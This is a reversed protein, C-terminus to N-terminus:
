RTGAWRAWVLWLVLASVIFAVPWITTHASHFWASDRDDLWYLSIIRGLNLALLALIGLSLGVCRRRWPAPFALVNACFLALPQYADCGRRVEISVGSGIIRQGRVVVDDGLLELLWGALSAYARLYADFYANPSLYTLFVVEFVTLLVLFRAVYGAVSFPRGTPKGASPSVTTASRAM